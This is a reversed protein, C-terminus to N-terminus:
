GADVLERRWDGGAHRSVTQREGSLHDPVGSGFDAPTDALSDKGNGRRLRPFLAQDWDGGFVISGGATALAATNSPAPTRHRWLIKESSIDM